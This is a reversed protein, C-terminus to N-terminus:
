LENRKAGESREGGEKKSARYAELDRYAQHYVKKAEEENLFLLSMDEDNHIHLTVEDATIEWNRRATRKAEMLGQERKDCGKSNM